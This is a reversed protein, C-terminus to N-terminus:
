TIQEMQAMQRQRKITGSSMLPEIGLAILTRAVEEMEAARRDGHTQMRELNYAAKATWDNGLSALVEDAVGAANAALMMEATLAEQGKVMVSRIMKISSARGIHGGVVRANSFGMVALVAASEHADPGSLLLPVTLRAPEVPAMVAVDVYRGRAAAILEAAARKTDPAVSNMDFYYTNPAIHQAANEAAAMAQDATVLSIIAHTDQVADCANACGTVGDSEYKALMDKRQDPDNTRIDFVQALAKWGAARSFTQGAEGYGFLTISQMM